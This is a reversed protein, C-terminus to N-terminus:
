IHILSLKGVLRAYEQVSQAGQAGFLTEIGGKLQEFDGVADLASQSLKAFGAVGASVAVTAGSLAKM